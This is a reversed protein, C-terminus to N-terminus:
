VTKRGGVNPDWEDAEDIARPARTTQASRLRNGKPGNPTRSRNNKVKDVVDPDVNFQFPSDRGASGKWGSGSDTSEEFDFMRSGTSQSPKMANIKVGNGKQQAQAVVGPSRHLSHGSDPDSNSNSDSNPDSDSSDTWGWCVVCICLLLLLALIFAMLMKRQNMDDASTKETSTGSATGAVAGGTSEMINTAVENQNVKDTAGAEM